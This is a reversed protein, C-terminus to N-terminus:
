LPGPYQEFGIADGAALYPAVEDSFEPLKVFIEAPALGATSYAEIDTARNRVGIGLPLVLAELTDAKYNKTNDGPLLLSPALRLAAVRM